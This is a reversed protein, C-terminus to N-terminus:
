LGLGSRTVPWCGSIRPAAGIPTPRWGIELIADDSDSKSCLRPRRNQTEESSGHPSIRYFLFSSLFFNQVKHKNTKQHLRFTKRGNAVLHFSKRKKKTNLITSM